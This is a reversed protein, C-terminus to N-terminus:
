YIQISIVSSFDFSRTSNNGPIIAFKDTVFRKITRDYVTIKRTISCRLNNIYNKSGMSRTAKPSIKSEVLLRKIDREKTFQYTHYIFLHLTNKSKLIKLHKERLYYIYTSIILMKKWHSDSLTIISM